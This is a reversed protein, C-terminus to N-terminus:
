DEIFTHFPFFYGQITDGPNAPVPLTSEVLITSVKTNRSNRVLINPVLFNRTAGPVSLNEIVITYAGFLIPPNVTIQFERVPHTVDIKPGKIKRNDPTMIYARIYEPPSGPPVSLPGATTFFFFLKDKHSLVPFHPHGRRLFSKPVYTNPIDLKSTYNKSCPHSKSMLESSAFFILIPLAATLIKQM